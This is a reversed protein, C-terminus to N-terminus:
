KLGMIRGDDLLQRSLQFNCREDSLDECRSSEERGVIRFSEQGGPDAVQRFRRQKRTHIVGGIPDEARNGVVAPDCDVTVVVNVTDGGGTHQPM